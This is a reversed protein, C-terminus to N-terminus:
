DSPTLTMNERKAWAKTLKRLVSSPGVATSYATMSAKIITMQKAAIVAKPVLALSVKPLTDEATPPEYAIEKQQELLWRTGVGALSLQIELITL